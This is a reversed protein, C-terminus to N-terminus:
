SGFRRSRNHPLHSSVVLSRPHGRVAIWRPLLPSCGGGEGTLQVEGADVRAVDADDLLGADVLHEVAAQEATTEEDTMTM